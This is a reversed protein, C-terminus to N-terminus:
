KNRKLKNILRQLFPIRDQYKLTIEYWYDHGEPTKCWTFGNWLADSLSDFRQSLKEKSLNALFKRRIPIPLKKAWQKITKSKRKPFMTNSEKQQSLIETLTFSKLLIASNELDSLKKTYGDAVGRELYTLLEETAATSIISDIGTPEGHGVAIAFEMEKNYHKSRAAFYVADSLQEFCFIGPTNALPFTNLHRDYALRFKGEALASFLKGNEVSLVKYYSTM